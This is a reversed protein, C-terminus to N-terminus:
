YYVPDKPQIRHGAALMVKYESEVVIAAAIILSFLVQFWIENYILQISITLIWLAIKAKQICYM